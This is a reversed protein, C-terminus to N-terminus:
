PTRVRSFADRVKPGNPWKKITKAMVAILDKGTKSSRNQFSMLIAACAYGFDGSFTRGSSFALPVRPSALLTPRTRSTSVPKAARQPIGVYRKCLARWQFCKRAEKRRRQTRRRMASCPVVGIVFLSPNSTLCLAPVAAPLRLVEVPVACALLPLTENMRRQFFEHMKKILSMPPTWKLDSLPELITAMNDCFMTRVDNVTVFLFEQLQSLAKEEEETEAEQLCLRCPLSPPHLLSTKM